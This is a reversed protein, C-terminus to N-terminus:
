ALSEYSARLRSVERLRQEYTAGVVLLLTGAAGISVFRPLAAAVPGLLQLADVALVVAGLALPAQLRERAGVLLVALAVAGVLLSRTLEDDGFSALLSPLLLLSLGPGYAQWSRTAPAGRRRLHGLALAVVALPLVYPEPADVGADALRVWSSASLLLGGAAAAARRDPRLATTLAALGCGALVWSLWGPDGIALIAALLGTGAAVAELALARPRDLVAALGLLVAVALLLLGGVQDPALDNAAGVATLEGTALLAAVATLPQTATTRSAAAALLVAAVALVSLTTERDALSWAAAFVAVGSGSALLAKRLGIPALAGGALLAAALTLLVALAAPFSLALGLPLLVATATVLAAAPVLAQRVRGLALGATGVTVAAAALVVTTVVSGDWTAAVGVAERAASGPALSWPAAVWTLPLLLGTLAWEGVAVVAAVAVALGGLVPGAREPRPVLAAAQVGLLAVAALVLPSQVATLEPAAVGYAAKAVLVVPAAWLLTRLTRDRTLAGAGVLVVAHALLAIGALGLSVQEAVAILLGAAVAAGACSGLSVLVHTRVRGSLVALVGLDAAALAALWLSTTAPSPEYAALLLPVPLQALVVAAGGALRVPVLRAYAVSIACLVAASGAAYLLPDSDGALGLKRLGYADLVALALAVGTLTEATATLGRRLAQPAALGALTTLALLVAARGGAGLRDYTVAAFVLAAVALLLGGLSLLTNQVRRPTWEPSAPPSTPAAAATVATVATIAYATGRGADPRAGRLEALLGTREVLLGQRRDELRLLESDLEWLRVAPAGQLRLGCTSCTETGTLLSRCDPCHTADPTRVATTGTTTM